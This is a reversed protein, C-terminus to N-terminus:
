EIEGTYLVKRLKDKIMEMYLNSFNYIQLSIGDMYQAKEKINISDAGDFKEIFRSVDNDINSIKEEIQKNDAESFLYKMKNHECKIYMIKDMEISFMEQLCEYTFEANGKFKTLENKEEIKKLYDHLLEFLKTNRYNKLRISELEKLKINTMRIGIISFIGTVTSTLVGASLIKLLIESM